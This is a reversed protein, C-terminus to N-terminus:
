TNGSLRNCCGIREFYQYYVAPTIRFRSGCVGPINTRQRRRKCQREFFPVDLRKSLESIHSPCLYGCRGAGTAGTAGQPGAAGTAGQPGQPCAPGPPGEVGVTNGNIETNGNIKALLAASLEAETVSGALLTAKIVNGTDVMIEIHTGTYGTYVDILDAISINISTGDQKTLILEKNVADYDLDQMFSEIPMNIVLTSGNHATFTLTHTNSDWAPLGILDLLINRIDAHATTSVNHDEIGNVRAQKNTCKKASALTDTDGQACVQAEKELLQQFNDNVNELDTELGSIKLRIDNHATASTNHGNIAQEMEPEAVFDVATNFLVWTPSTNWGAVAQYVGSQVPDAVVKCLYNRKKSLGATPLQNKDMVPPLWENGALVTQDTYDKASNLTNTDGQIREQKEESLKTNTYTKANNLANNTADAV